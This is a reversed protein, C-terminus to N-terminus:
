QMGKRVVGFAVLEEWSLKPMVEDRQAKVAARKEALRRDRERRKEQAQEASVKEKLIGKWYARVQINSKLLTEFDIGKSYAELVATAVETASPDNYYGRSYSYAMDKGIEDIWMTDASKGYMYQAFVQKIWYYDDDNM